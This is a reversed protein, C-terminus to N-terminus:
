RHVRIYYNGTMDNCDNYIAAPPLVPETHSKCRQLDTIPQQTGTPMGDANYATYPHHHPHWISKYPLTDKDVSWNDRNFYNFEDYTGTLPCQHAGPLAGTGTYRFVQIDYDAAGEVLEAHFDYDNRQDAQDNTLNDQTKFVYWDYTDDVQGVENISTRGIINGVVERSASTEDLMTPWATSDGPARDIATSFDNGGVNALDFADEPSCVTTSLVNSDLSINGGIDKCWMRCS